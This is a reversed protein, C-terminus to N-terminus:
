LGGAMLHRASVCWRLPTLDSTRVSPFISRERLPWRCEARPLPRPDRPAPRHGKGAGRRPAPPRAYRLVGGRAAASPGARARPQRLPGGGRGGSGRLAARERPGERPLSPSDWAVDPRNCVWCPLIELALPALTGGEFLAAPFWSSASPSRARSFVLFFQVYPGCDARFVSPPALLSRPDHTRSSPSKWEWIPAWSLRIWPDGCSEWNSTWFPGAELSWLQLFFCGRVRQRAYNRAM